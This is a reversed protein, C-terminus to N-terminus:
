LNEKKLEPSQFSFGALRGPELYDRVDQSIESLTLARSISLQKNEYLDVLEPEEKPRSPNFVMVTPRITSNHNVSIVMGVRHDNLEVLSGPPYVGVSKILVEILNVPFLHKMTKYMTSLTVHPLQNHKSSNVHALNDYCDAIAVIKTLFKINEGILGSPYGSGDIREHHHKIIDLAEPPFDPIQAAIQAGVNCHSKIIEAEAPTSHHKKALLRLPINRYGIDHFLAGLGLMKMDKESLNAVKGMLLSIISVNLAHFHLLEKNKQVNVFHVLSESDQTISHSIIEVFNTTKRISRMDSRQIGDFIDDVITIAQQYTKNSRQLAIKKDIVKEAKKVPPTFAQIKISEAEHNPSSVAEPSHDHMDPEDPRIVTIVEVGLQRLKTLQSESSIKFRNKPFPHMLWPMDLHVVMGLALKDKPVKVINEGPKVEIKKGM